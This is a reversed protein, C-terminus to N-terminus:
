LVIVRNKYFSLAQVIAPEKFKLSVSQNTKRQM